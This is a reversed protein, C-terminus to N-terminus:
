KAFVHHGIRRVVLRSWIWRSVAQDPNWFFVAGGSPDWGALADAAARVSDASPRAYIAGNTVSEFAHAEYIVGQLSDPFHPDRMRNLIVAAVAVQGEYPEGRAEASVVRALLDRDNQRAAGRSPTAGAVRRDPSSSEGLTAWTRPGVLGDATLGNRRQFQVIATYTQRGYMGDVAGDYYGWTKLKQQVLRVAQGQNGWRLTTLAAVPTAWVAAQVGLAALVVWIRWRMTGHGEM